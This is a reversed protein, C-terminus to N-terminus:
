VRLLICFYSLNCLKTGMPGMHPFWFYKFKKIDESAWLGEFNLYTDWLYWTSNSFPLFIVGIKVIIKIEFISGQCHMVDSSCLKQRHGSNVIGSITRYTSLSQLAKPLHLYWFFKFINQKGWMRVQFVQPWCQNVLEFM